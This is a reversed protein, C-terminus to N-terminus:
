SPQLPQDKSRQFRCTQLYISNGMDELLHLDEESRYITRSAVCSEELGESWFEDKSLTKELAAMCQIRRGEEVRSDKKRPM